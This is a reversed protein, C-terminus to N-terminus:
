VKKRNLGRHTEKLSHCNPCLIRLNGLRNDYRNGNVHDLELPLRGHKSYKAWGCEECQPKKLEAMFLRNKLKYSQYYSPNILIAELRTFPRGTGKLDRNWAQGKFHATSLNLDKIRRSVQAYNGGAPVLGLGRIVRRLSFSTKVLTILQRDSWSKKREM